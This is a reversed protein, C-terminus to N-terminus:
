GLLFDLPQKIAQTTLANPFTLIFTTGINPTSEVEITGSFDSVVKKVLPLGLGTGYDKTTFFPSFLNKCTEEDMGIGEDQVYVQVEQTTVHLRITVNGSDEMAQVANKLLNILVQKFRVSSGLVVHQLQEDYELQIIVENMLAEFQMFDIVEKSIEVLDVKQLEIKRPNALFLLDSLITDLRKFESEMIEFYHEQEQLAESKLLEVFGKLATLPNRIEHAISASMQGLEKLYNQEKLENQLKVYETHDVISVIFLNSNEDYFVKLEYYLPESCETKKVLLSAQEKRELRSYFQSASERDYTFYKLLQKHEKTLVETKSCGIYQLAKHNVDLAFGDATFTVIGLDMYNFVSMMSMVTGTAQILTPQLTAIVIDQLEDYCGHVRVFPQTSTQLQIECTANSQSRVREIFQQWMPISAEDIPFFKEDKDGKIELLAKAGQNAFIIDFSNAIFVTSENTLTANHHFNMISAIEM